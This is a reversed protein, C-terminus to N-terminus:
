SLRALWLFHKLLYLLRRVDFPLFSIKICNAPLSGDINYREINDKSVKITRFSDTRTQRRMDFNTIAPSTEYGHGQQRITVGNPNPKWNERTAYTRSCKVQSLPGAKAAFGALRVIMVCGVSSLMARIVWFRFLFFSRWVVINTHSFSRLPRSLHWINRIRLTILKFTQPEAAM